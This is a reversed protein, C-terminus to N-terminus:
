VLIRPKTIFDALRLREGRKERLILEGKGEREKKAGAVKKPAARAHMNIGRHFKEM